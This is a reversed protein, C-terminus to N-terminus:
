DPLTFSVFRLFSFLTLTQYWRCPLHHNLFAFTIVGVHDATADMRRASAGGGREEGGFRHRPQTKRESREGRAVFSCVGKRARGTLTHLQLNITFKQTCRLTHIIFVFMFTVCVSTSGVVVMRPYADAPFAAYVGDTLPQWPKFAAALEAAPSPTTAAAAAAAVGAQHAPSSLQQLSLPVTAAAAAAKAAKRQRKEQKHADRLEYARRILQLSNCVSKLSKQTTRWLLLVFSYTHCSWENGVTTMDVAHTSQFLLLAEEATSARLLPPAM